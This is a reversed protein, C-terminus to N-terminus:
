DTGMPTAEGLFVRLAAEDLTAVLQEAEGLNAAQTNLTRQLLEDGGVRGFILAVGGYSGAMLAVQWQHGQVDDFTRM